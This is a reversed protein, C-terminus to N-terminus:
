LTSYPTTQRNAHRSHTDLNTSHKFGLLLIRIGMESKWLCSSDGNVDGSVTPM